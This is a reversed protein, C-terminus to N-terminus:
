TMSVHTDYRKQTKEARVGVNCTLASEIGRDYAALLGGLVVLPRFHIVLWGCLVYNNAFEFVLFELVVVVFVMDCLIVLGVPFSMRVRQGRLSETFTSM